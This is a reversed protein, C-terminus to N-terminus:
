DIIKLRFEGSGGTITVPVDYTSANVTTVTGISGTISSSVPTIAFNSAAPANVPESFTVRFTASTSTIAQATPTQRVISLVTPPTTDAPTANAAAMMFTPQAARTLFGVTKGNLASSTGVDVAIPSNQQTTGGDGLQSSANTGWSYVKGETTLVEAFSNGGSISAITKGSLVSSVDVAVPAASSATGANGLGGLTGTGWSYLTGDRAIAYAGSVTCTISAVKRSGPLLGTGSIAAPTANETPINVTGQGLQGQINTGWTYVLGDSTLAAGFSGGGSVAVVRKGTFVGGLQAPSTVNNLNDGNGLRGNAARGWTYIGGDSTCALGFNTGASIGTVVKGNLAGNAIVAVPTTQPSNTSGIGLQGTSNSGWGYVKGDSDLALTFNDGCALSIITKGSLVGSMDVAVPIPQPSTTTSNGIQGTQNGGWSFLLNDATLVTTWNSGSAMQVINKGSLVGAVSVATPLAKNGGVATGDGIQGAAHSGWGIPVATGVRIVQGSEFGDPLATSAGDVIGTGSHKLDLRLTGFGSIGNVTVDYVAGSGSISAITGTVTGVKLLTFDTMDVGTVSGNFTVRFVTSTGVVALTTQPQRNISIAAPPPALGFNDYIFNDVAIYNMAAGTQSVLVFEVTDIDTSAFATASLDLHHWYGGVASGSQPPTRATDTVNASVVQSGNRKGIVTYNLGITGLQDNTGGYVAAGAGSSPWVDFKLARFTYGTPAKMGGINGLSRSLLFGSDLYANTTPSATGVAPSGFGTAVVGVMFGTTTWTQSSATFTTANNAVSEFNFTTPAAFAAPPSIAFSLAALAL